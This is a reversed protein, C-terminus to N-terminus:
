RDVANPSVSQYASRDPRSSREDLMYFGSVLLILSGAFLLSIYYVSPTFFSFQHFRMTLKLFAKDSGFYYRGLTYFVGSLATIALPLAIALSVVRHLHEVSGRNDNARRSRFWRILMPTGTIVMLVVAIGMVLPYIKELGVISLVHLDLLWRCREKPVAFCARLIRYM